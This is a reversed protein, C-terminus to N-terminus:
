MIEYIVVNERHKNREIEENTDETQQIQREKM